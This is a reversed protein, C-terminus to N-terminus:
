ASGLAKSANGGHNDKIAKRLIELLLKDLKSGASDIRLVLQQGGGSGMMAETKGHPIVSSGAPLRVLERGQEGVMVM